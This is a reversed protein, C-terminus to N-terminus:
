SVVLSNCEVVINSAAWLIVIALTFKFRFNLSMNERSNNNLNWGVFVKQEAQIFILWHYQTTLTKQKESRRRRRRRKKGAKIHTLSPSFIFYLSWTSRRTFLTYSTCSFTHSHSHHCDDDVTADSWETGWKKEAVVGGRSICACSRAM